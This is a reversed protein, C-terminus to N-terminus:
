RRVPARRLVSLMQAFPSRGTDNTRTVLQFRSNVTNMIYSIVLSIVLYSLIVVMFVSVTQGTQNIITFSVQFLDTFSIAIALSSNKALNLYQNGMPPIIVRLAQPLIILTLTKGYSFGLARSAEVQGKDVAQIGARVIEAVFASTYIVLGLLLAIYESSYNSGNIYRLGQRQPGIVVFPARSVEAREAPTLLNGALAESVVVESPTGSREIIVTEPAPPLFALLYGIASIAIVVGLGVLISHYERGTRESAERLQRNVVYGMTLGIAAFVGFIMFRPTPLIEPLVVGRNSLAFLPNGAPIEIADRIAPLALVVIFYFAFLQVLLPTNRLIEVYVRAINQVLFNTSLLCVGFFIGIITTLPLGVLVVRLTNELGVMFARGYSDDPSYYAEAGGLGFGARNGWFGMNPALNKATLASVVNQALTVIGAIVLVIFIIQLAAKIFREDRLLKLAGDM